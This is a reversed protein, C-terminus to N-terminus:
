RASSGRTATSAERLRKASTLGPCSLSPHPSTRPRHHTSFSSSPSTRAAQALVTLNHLRLDTHWLLRLSSTWGGTLSVFRDIREMTAPLTEDDTASSSFLLVRLQRASTSHAPRTAVAAGLPVAIDHTDLRTEARSKRDSRAITRAPFPASHQGDMGRLKIDTAATLLPALTALSQRRRLSNCFM